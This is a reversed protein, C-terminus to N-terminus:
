AQPLSFPAAVKPKSTRSRPKKIPLSHTQWLLEQAAKEYREFDIDQPMEAPLTMLPKAGDSTAVKNGNKVYLLAEGGTSWYFRVVKGLYTGEWQAGGTVTRITVYDTIDGSRVLEAIPKGTTLHQIVSKAIIPMAPNKMLGTEAFVGKGKAKGGPKVAIYNNVDRAHMSLYETEELTFGTTHEWWNMVSRVKPLLERRGYILVGDTNASKIKAGVQTLAEILMLLALQGTVTVAILLKPAYLKSYPSGLKGFTGNLSIKLSNATITDGKHKADLRRTYITRYVDLFGKGMQPPFLSSGLILSPYYSAVDADMLFHERDAMVTQCQESSHLGGIGMKYTAGNFEIAQDLEKPMQVVGKSDTYFTCRKAAALVDALMPTEFHLWKPPSYSFSNLGADPKDVQKGLEKLIVAEAIQADSKSLLNLGYQQGMSRRLEVQESLKDALLLTLQTDNECYSAVLELNEEALPVHPDFPLDQMKPANIRGGYIKLSTMTGPAVEILDIHRRTWQTPVDAISWPAVGDEIISKSANYIDAHTKNGTLAYAILPLDYRLTNFGCTDNKSLVAKIRAADKDSFPFWYREAKQSNALVVLMANPAVEIDVAIM